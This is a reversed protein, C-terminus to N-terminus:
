DTLDVVNAATLDIVEREAAAAADNADAEALTMMASEMKLLAAVTAGAKKLLPMAPGVAPYIFDELYRPKLDRYKSAVFLLTAGFLALALCGSQYQGAVHALGGAAMTPVATTAAAWAKERKNTSRAVLSADLLLKAYIVLLALQRGCCGLLGLAVMIGGTDRLVKQQRKHENSRPM